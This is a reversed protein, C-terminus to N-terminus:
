RNGPFAPVDIRLNEDGGWAIVRGDDLRAVGFDAGRALQVIGAGNRPPVGTQGYQNQGWCTIGGDSRLAVCHNQGAAIATFAVGAPLSPVTCAHHSCDGFVVVAGSALRAMTNGGGAAVEVYAGLANINPLPTGPSTGWSRASGDSLLAVSHNDGADIQLCSLGSPIVPVNLQGLSNDGWAVLVNDSRLAVSHLAGAAIRTYTTMPPLPPVSCLQQLGLALVTGNSLLLLTHDIGAAFATVYTGVPPQAIHPPPGSFHDAGFGVLVGDSRLALSHHEGAAIRLYVTGAPPLPPSAQGETDRGFAVITGDAALALTHPEGAAIQVYDRRDSSVSDFNQLGWGVVTSQAAAVRAAGLAFSAALLLATCNGRAGRPGAGFTMRRWRVVGGLDISNTAMGNNMGWCCPTARPRVPWCASGHGARSRGSRARRSATARRARGMARGPFTIAESLIYSVAAVTLAM